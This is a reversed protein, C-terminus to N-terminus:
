MTLYDHMKTLSRKMYRSVKVQSIGIRKAIEDQTLDLYYRGEIIKRELPSLVDMGEKLSLRDDMPMACKDAIVDLYSSDDNDLSIADSYSIASELSTIDINLFTAVEENSPIRDYKQALKYRTKEILNALKLINKNVKLIRNNALAYM